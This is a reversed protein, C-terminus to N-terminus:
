ASAASSCFRTSKFNLSRSPSICRKTRFKGRNPASGGSPPGGSGPVGGAPGSLNALAPLMKAASGGSPPGGSGPVGGAPGARNPLGALSRDSSGGSPPGSGPAGGAPGALNPLGQRGQATGDERQRERGVALCEEQAAAIVQGDIVLAAASDHYFASLGLIATMILGILLARLTFEKMAMTEPVYPRFKKKTPVTTQTSM